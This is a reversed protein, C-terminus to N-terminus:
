RIEGRIGLFAAMGGRIGGTARHSWLLESHCRTCIKAEYISSSPIGAALLIRRNAEWLDVMYKECSKQTIFCDPEMDEMRKFVEMVPRDVEYCCPGISPGVAAKLEGPDTGFEHQMRQVM